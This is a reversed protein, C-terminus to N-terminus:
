WRLAHLGGGRGGLCVCVCLCGCGCAVFVCARVRVRVRVCVYRSSSPGIAPLTLGHPAARPTAPTTGADRRASSRGARGTYLIHDRTYTHAHIQSCAARTLSFCFRWALSAGLSDRLIMAEVKVLQLQQSCLSRQADCPLSAAKLVSLCASPFFGCSLPLYLSALRSLFFM